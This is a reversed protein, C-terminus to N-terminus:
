YLGTFMLCGRDCRTVCPVRHLGVIEYSRRKNGIIPIRIAEVVTGTAVWIIDSVKALSIYIIILLNRGGERKEVVVHAVM